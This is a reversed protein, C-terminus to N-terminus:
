QHESIIKLLKDPQRFNLLFFLIGLLSLIQFKILLPATRKQRVAKKKYLELFATAQEAPLFDQM